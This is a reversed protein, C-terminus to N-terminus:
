ADYGNDEGQDDSTDSAAAKHDDVNRHDDLRAVNSAREISETVPSDWTMSSSTVDLRRGVEVVLQEDTASQLAAATSEIGAEKETIHGNAVLAAIVSTGYERAIAMSVDFSINGTSLQRSIISDSLGARRSIERFSDDGCTARLWENANNM